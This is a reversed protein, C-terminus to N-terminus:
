PAGGDIVSPPPPTFRVASEAVSRAHVLFRRRAPVGTRDLDRSITTVGAGVYPATFRIRYRGSPLRTVEHVRMVSGGSATVLDGVKLYSAGLMRPSWTAAEAPASTTLAAGAGGVGGLLLARLMARRPAPSSSTM